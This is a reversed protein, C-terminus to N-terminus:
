RDLCSHCSIPNFFKLFKFLHYSSIEVLSATNDVGPNNPWYNGSAWANTSGSAAGAGPFIIITNATGVVNGESTTSGLNILLQNGTVPNSSNLYYNNGATGAYDSPILSGFSEGGLRSEFAYAAQDMIYRQENGFWNTTDYSYDFIIDIAAFCSMTSHIFGFFLWFGRSM